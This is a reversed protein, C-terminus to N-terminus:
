GILASLAGTPDARYRSILEGTAEDIREHLARRYATLQEEAEGLRALAETVQADDEPVLWVDALAPLDPLPEAARMSVLVARARGSGTEGLVRVLDALSLAGDADCGARLLDLRAHVLRRWYSVKEEEARLRQRYDRLRDLELGALEATAAAITVTRRQGSSPLPAERKEVPSEVPGIM